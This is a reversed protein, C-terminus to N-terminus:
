LSIELFAILDVLDVHHDKQLSELIEIITKRENASWLNIISYFWEKFMETTKNENADAFIAHLHDENIKGMRISYAFECLETVLIPKKAYKEICCVAEFVKPRKSTSTKSTPIVYYEFGERIDKMSNLNKISGHHPLQLVSKKISALAKRIAECTVNGYKADGTLLTANGITKNETLATICRNEGLLSIPTEVYTSLEQNDPYHLLTLSTLNLESKGFVKDFDSKVKGILKKIDHVKKLDDFNTIKHRNLTVRIREVARDIKTEDEHNNFFKFHWITDVGFPSTSEKEAAVITIDSTPRDNTYLNNLIEYSEISDAGGMIACYLLYVTIDKRPFYPLFVRKVEFNEFLQSLGSVHDNHLHSITLMNLVPRKSHGTGCWKTRCVVNNRFASINENLKSLTDSGCDYVMTFPGPTEGVTGNKQMIIGTYFLGFGVSNFKFLSNIM